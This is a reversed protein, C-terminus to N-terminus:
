KFVVEEGPSEKYIAAHGDVWQGKKLYQSKTQLTGDKLFWAKAKVKTIGEKSGSVEEVSVFTEGDFDAEGTTYFGATTFYYYRLKNLTRDWFIITEGGYEGKNLSHTIRIAAGNLHREWKSVDIVPKDPTSNAFKGKYTKGLFPRFKELQPILTDNAIAQTCGILLIAFVLKPMM